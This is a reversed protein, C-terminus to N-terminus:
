VPHRRRCARCAHGGAVAPEHSGAVLDDGTGKQVPRSEGTLLSEDAQTSGNVLVGDAPFAQGVPVRALDGPRLRRIPVAEVSGDDGVRLASQPLRTTADELASEARHRARMELFRGGLLFAVFMAISDFYVDSGFAGGPAFAAGSSAVFAVGIGIAVPVDMGIHRRRLTRWAGTFFPAASFWMVPLTLLWSGWDFLQKQDAALEGARSVYSPTALMMIQMACFAAVFLRWLATRAERRRQSRAAAATDPVAEYGADEVAKVFASPRTSATDWRM